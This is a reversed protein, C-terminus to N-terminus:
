VLSNETKGTGPTINNTYNQENEIFSITNLLSIEFNLNEESTIFM